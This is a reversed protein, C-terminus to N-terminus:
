SRALIGMKELAQPNDEFVIRAVTIFDSVWAELEDLAADRAATAEQAEGMEKTQAARTADVVGLLAQDTELKEQTIGLKALATLCDPNALATTYFHEAQTKGGSFSQKRRGLLNLEQLIQLDDRFVVRALKVNRMYAKRATQWAAQMSQSAAYQEQYEVIQKQHLASANQYRAQGEALGDDPGYGVPALEIQLDPDHANTILVNIEDLRTAIYDKSM